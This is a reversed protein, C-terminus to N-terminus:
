RLVVVLLRRLVVLLLEFLLGFLGSRLMVFVRPWIGAIGDSRGRAGDIRDGFVNTGFLLLRRRLVVFLM